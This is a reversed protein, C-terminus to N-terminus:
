ALDAGGRVAEVGNASRFEEAMWEPTPRTGSVRWGQNPPGESNAAGESNPCRYALVYNSNFYFFKAICGAVHAAGRSPLEYTASKM